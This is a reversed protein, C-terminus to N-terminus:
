PNRICETGFLSSLAEAMANDYPLRVRRNGARHLGLDSRSYWLV